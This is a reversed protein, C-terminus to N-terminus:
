VARPDENGRSDHNVRRPGRMKGTDESIARNFAATGEMTGIAIRRMRGQDTLVMTAAMGEKPTMIKIIRTVKTTAATKGNVVEGTVAVSTTPRITNAPFRRVLTLMARGVRVNNTGSTETGDVKSGSITAVGTM